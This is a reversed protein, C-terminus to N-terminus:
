KRGSRQQSYMQLLQMLLAGSDRGAQSTLANADLRDNRATNGVSGYTNSAGTLMSAAGGTAGQGFDLLRAVANTRGDRFLSAQAGARQRELEGLQYDRDPGRLFRSLNRRTGGYAANTQEIEPALAQTMAGRDGSALTSYYRGAQSLAPTGMRFLSESQNRQTNAIGTQANLATDETPTRQGAKKAARYNMYSSVLATGGIVAAAPM